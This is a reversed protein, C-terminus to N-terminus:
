RCPARSPPLGVAIRHMTQQEALLSMQLADEGAAAPADRSAYERKEKNREGRCLYSDASMWTWRLVQELDGCLGFIM